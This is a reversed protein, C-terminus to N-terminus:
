FDMRMTFLREAKCTPKFRQVIIRLVCLENYYVVIDSNQSIMYKKKKKINDFNNENNEYCINLWQSPHKASYLLLIIIIIMNSLIGDATGKYLTCTWSPTVHFNLTM